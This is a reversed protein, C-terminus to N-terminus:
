RRVGKVGIVLAPDASSLEFSFTYGRWVSFDFGQVQGPPVAYASFLVGVEFTTDSPPPTTAYLTVQAAAQTSLLVTATGTFPSVFTGVATNAAVNTIVQLPLLTLAAIEPRYIIFQDGLLPSEPLGDAVTVIAATVAGGVYRTSVNVVTTSVRGYSTAKGSLQGSLSGSIFELEAGVYRDSMSPLVNPIIGQPNLCAVAIETSSISGAVAWNSQLIDRTNRGAARIIDDVGVSM